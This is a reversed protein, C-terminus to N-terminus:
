CEEPAPKPSRRTPRTAAKGIRLDERSSSRRRPVAKGHHHVILEPSWGGADLGGKRLWLRTVADARRILETSHSFDHPSVDLPCLPPVIVLDVRSRFREIDGVLQQMVLLNLAHLGVAIAAEPPSELACPMGTPLVVIRNAGLRVATSIPTNNSVGGDILYRGGASVVPFIAPVAASAMLAKVTPGSGFVVESGTLVDTATVHCRIRAQELRHGGFETELLSQLGTPEIFHDRKGIFGLLNGIPAFPFIQGRSLSNWIRELSQVGSRTPDSAFYAGNIAGVSAGVVLDPVIAQRTLAKLMGVQVAGLSGGGALVFATRHGGPASRSRPNQKPAQMTM